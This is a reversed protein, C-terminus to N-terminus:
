TATRARRKAPLKEETLSVESIGLRKRLRAGKKASKEDACSEESSQKPPTETSLAQTTTDNHPILQVLQYALMPEMEDRVKQAREQEKM